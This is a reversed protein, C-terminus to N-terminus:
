KHTEEIIHRKLDHALHWCELIMKRERQNIANGSQGIHWLDPIQIQDIEVQSEKTGGKSLTILSM